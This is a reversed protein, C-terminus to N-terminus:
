VCSKRTSHMAVATAHRHDTQSTVHLDNIHCKAKNVNYKYRYILLKQFCESLLRVPEIM